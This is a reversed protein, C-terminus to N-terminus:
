PVTCPNQSMARHIYLKKFLTFNRIEIQSVSDTNIEVRLVSEKKVMSQGEVQMNKAMESVIRKQPTKNGKDRCGQGM